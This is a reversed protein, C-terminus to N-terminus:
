KTHYIKFFNKNPTLCLGVKCSSCEWKTRHPNEKTSCHNCRRSSCSQPMHCANSYRQELPINPKYKNLVIKEQKKVKPTTCQPTGVLGAAVALRFQKLNM